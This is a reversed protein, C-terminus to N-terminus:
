NWVAELFCQMLHLMVILIDQRMNTSPLLRFDPLSCHLNGEQTWLISAGAKSGTCVSTVSGECWKTQPNIERNKGM